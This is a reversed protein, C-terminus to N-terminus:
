LNIRFGFRNIRNYIFYVGGWATQEPESASFNIFIVEQYSDKLFIVNVREIIILKLYKILSCM